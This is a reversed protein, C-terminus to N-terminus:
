PVYQIPSETHLIKRTQISLYNLRRVINCNPVTINFVFKDVSIKKRKCKSATSCVCSALM